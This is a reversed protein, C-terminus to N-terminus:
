LGDTVLTASGKFEIVIAHDASGRDRAEFLDHVCFASSQHHVPHTERDLM